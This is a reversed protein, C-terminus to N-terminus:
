EPVGAKSLRKRFMESHEPNSYLRLSRHYSSLRFGPELKLFRGVVDRAEDIREAAVLAVALTRLTTTYRPNEAVSRSLWAIAKEYDGFDYYATGLFSYYIFLHQDFPSLRLAREAAAVAEEGRGLSGLTVSSLLWATSNNPNKERARELYGIATEFEGFLYSQVHGYVAFALANQEDLQIARQAREAALEGDRRPDDSWGQGVRLSHWRASWALPTAFGPDREISRNLFGYAQDFQTRELSGILDLARLYLDFATFSGPWKRLARRREAAHLGPLLRQLTSEVIEDQIRFVDQEAFDRRESFVQEGSETDLLETLIRIRDPARRVTGAILYRVGLVDGVTRPDVTQRAFALTSSRSIVTLDRLSSLSVVIDEVLGAAFYDDEPDGSLNQFPLVAISPLQRSRAADRRLPRGDTVLEYAAVAKRMKRLPLNGMRRVVFDRHESIEKFVAETFIIGGSAAHEQLRAAINVGDGALDDKDRYVQCFNLSIRLALGQRRHRAQRQVERSWRLGTLADPFTSLIGDGTSKVLSGGFADLLSLVVDERLDTWKHYTGEEDEHMMASFGVVDVFSVCLMQRDDKAATAQGNIAQGSIPASAFRDGGAANLGVVIARAQVGRPLTRQDFLPRAEVARNGRNGRANHAVDRYTNVIKSQLSARQSQVHSPLRAKGCVARYTRAGFKM